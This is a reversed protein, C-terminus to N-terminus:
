EGVAQDMAEIAARKDDDNPHTYIQTSVISSHGLLEQVTRLDTKSKARTAFTHRLVHPHIRRGITKLANDLVIREVQRTTVRGNLSRNLFAFQNENIGLCDIWELKYTILSRSIRDSIPIDREKKNKSIESRVTLNNVPVTNWYLDSVLLRVVEGVRLGADLM